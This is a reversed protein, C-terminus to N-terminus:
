EKSNEQIHDLVADSRAIISGLLFGCLAPLFISFASGMWPDPRLSMSDFLTTIHPLVFLASLAVALRRMCYALFASPEKALMRTLQQSNKAWLHAATASKKAALAIQGYAAIIGLALSAIGVTTNFEDLSM